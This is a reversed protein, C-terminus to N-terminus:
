GQERAMRYAIGDEIEIRCDGGYTGVYEALDTTMEVCQIDDDGADFDDYIGAAETIAELETDGSAIIGVNEQIIAYAM